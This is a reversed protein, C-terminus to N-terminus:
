EEGLEQELEKREWEEVLEREDIFKAVPYSRDRGIVMRSGVNKPAYAYFDLGNKEIVKCPRFSIGSRIAAPQEFHIPPLQMDPRYILGLARLFSLFRDITTYLQGSQEFVWCKVMNCVLRETKFESKYVAASGGALFFRTEVHLNDAVIRAEFSEPIINIQETTKFFQLAGILDSFYFESM